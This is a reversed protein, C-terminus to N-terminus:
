QQSRWFIISIKANRKSGTTECTARRISQGIHWKGSTKRLCPSGRKSIHRQPADYQGTQFVATDLGAFAVLQSPQEFTEIPDVEGYLSVINLPSAGPLTFLYKPLKAAMDTIQDELKERVPELAEMQDLLCNIGASIGDRGRQM